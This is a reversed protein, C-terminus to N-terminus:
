NIVHVRGTNKLTAAIRAPQGAKVVPQVDVLDVAPKPSGVTVYVITAVRSKFLVGKSIVGETGPPAFDFMIAARYGGPATGAPINVTFRVMGSKGPEVVQEVPNLRIWASASFPMTGEADRYQPTGDKSM